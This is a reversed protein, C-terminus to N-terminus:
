EERFARTLQDSLPKLLYSLATRPETQVFGEVPMGPILTLEGLRELEHDPVGVSVRYFSAGSQQDVVASPSLMAIQGFLEPTTRQNFAPLRVTVSQGPRLQDIYQPEVTLEIETGQDLAIVQAIEGGPPVVGGNTFVNMEHVVGTVPATIVIRELQKRTALIQQSLDYVETDAARLETLAEERMSDRMQLIALETERISNEIRALESDHEALQGLIDALTREQALVRSRQVLEKRLLTRIDLLESELLDRQRQKSAILARVGKIQNGFQEIKERQQNIQGSRAARKAQFLKRQAEMSKTFDFGELATIPQPPEMDDRDELEAQLRARTVLAEALRGRYIDYNARLLTDDLRVLPAGAEVQQGSTVLITDVIGGDLHQVSKPKGRVNVTGNAIVAGSLEATAMWGIGVGFLLAFLTIGAVLPRAFGTNPSSTV